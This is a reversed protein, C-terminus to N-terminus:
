ASVRRNIEALRAALDTGEAVLRRLEAVSDATVKKAVIKEITGASFSYFDRFQLAYEVADAYTGEYYHLFTIRGTARGGSDVDIGTAKWIGYENPNQGHLLQQRGAAIMADTAFQTQDM